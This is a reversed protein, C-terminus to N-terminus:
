YCCSFYFILEQFYFSGKKPQGRGHPMSRSKRSNKSNVMVSAKSRGMAAGSATPSGSAFPLGNMAPVDAEDAISVKMTRKAKKFMRDEKTPMNEFSDASFLQKSEGDVEIDIPDVVGGEYQNGTAM